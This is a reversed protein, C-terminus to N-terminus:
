DWLRSISGQSMTVMKRHKRSRNRKFERVCYWFPNEMTCSYLSHPFSYHREHRSLWAFFVCTCVYVTCLLSKSLEEPQVISHLGSFTVFEVQLVGIYAKLSAVPIHRLPDESQVFTCAPQVQLSAFVKRVLPNEARFVCSTDLCMHLCHSISPGLSYLM